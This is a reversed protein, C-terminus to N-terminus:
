GIELRSIWDSSLTFGYRLKAPSGPFNGSVLGAVTTGGNAEEAEQPVVTVRYKLTTEVMWARIAAHGVHEEGEDHVMAGAAFPALMADIDHRNIALFYDAVPAPLQITM